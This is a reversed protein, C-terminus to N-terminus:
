LVTKLTPRAQFHTGDYRGINYMKKKAMIGLKKKKKFFRESVHLLTSHVM